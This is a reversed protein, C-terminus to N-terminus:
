HTYHWHLSQYHTNPDIHAPCCHPNICCSLYKIEAPAPGWRCFPFHSYHSESCITRQSPQQTNNSTINTRTHVQSCLPGTVAHTRGPSIFSCIPKCIVLAGRWWLSRHGRTQSGGGASVWLVVILNVQVGSVVNYVPEPPRPEM